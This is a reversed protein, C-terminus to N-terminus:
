EGGEGGIWETEGVGGGCWEIQDDKASQYYTGDAMAVAVAFLEAMLYDAAIPWAAIAGPKKKVPPGALQRDLKQWFQDSM